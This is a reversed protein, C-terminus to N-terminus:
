TLNTSSPETGGFLDFSRPALCLLKIKIPTSGQTSVETLAKMIRYMTLIYVLLWPAYHHKAFDRSTVPKCDTPSKWGAAKLIDADMYSINM